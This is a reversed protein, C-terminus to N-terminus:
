YTYKQIFFFRCVPCVVDYRGQVVITPIHRSTVTLFFPCLVSTFHVYMKDIEQKDLLQGDRM